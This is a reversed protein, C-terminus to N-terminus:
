PIVVKDKETFEKTVTIGNFKYKITLKKVTGYDPDGKIDNCAVTELRNDVIMKSLEETVDLSAKETWYTAQIIVLTSTKDTIEKEVKPLGIIEEEEYSKLTFPLPLPGSSGEPFFSKLAGSGKIKGIILFSQLHFCASFLAFLVTGCVFVYLLINLLNTTEQGLHIGTARTLIVSIIGGASLSALVSFVDGLLSNSKVNHLDEATTLYYTVKRGKIETEILNEPKDTM